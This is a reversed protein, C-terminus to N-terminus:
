PDVSRSCTPMRVVLITNGLGRWLRTCWILAWVFDGAVQRRQRLLARAGGGFRDDDGCGCGGAGCDACTRAHQLPVARWVACDHMGCVKALLCCDICHVGTGCVTCQVTDLVGIVFGKRCGGIAEWEGDGWGVGAGGSGRTYVWPFHAGLARSRLGYQAAALCVIGGLM